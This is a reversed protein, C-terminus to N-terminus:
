KVFLAAFLTDARMEYGKLLGMEVLQLKFANEIYDVVDENEKKFVSCTIYLLSGGKRIHPIVESVIKKQTKSYEEIKKKDFYYLQEPTRSWTGSGTCPVDAIIVDFPGAKVNVEKFLDAVFSNYKKIGANKFREGLNALISDRKDSVTLNISPDIDYAMISKGGSGACCDWINSHNNNLNSRWTKLPKYLLEGTKQSNYDQVIAEKGLDVFSEIKTGSDFAICDNDMLEYSIGSANIKDIVKEKYGPRIRVYAKPQTLISESMKQREIGNSLEDKFPFIENLLLNQEIISLKTRLPENIIANWGPKLQELLKNPQDNTLFLGTLIREEVPVDIFAKGLRFYSYCLSTITKRDKSGHKKNRSFYKKLYLHFPEKGDYGSLIWKAIDLHQKHYM